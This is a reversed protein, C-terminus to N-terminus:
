RFIGKFKNWVKKIGSPQKTGHHEPPKASQPTPSVSPSASPSPTPSADSNANATVAPNDGDNGRWWRAALVVSGLLAILLIIGAVLARSRDTQAAIVPVNLRHIEPPRADGLAIPSREIKEQGDLTLPSTGSAAQVQRLTALDIVL